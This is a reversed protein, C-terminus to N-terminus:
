LQDKPRGRDDIPLALRALDEQFAGRAEALAQRTAAGANLSTRRVDDPVQGLGLSEILRFATQVQPDDALDNGADPKLDAPRVTVSRSGFPAWRDGPGRVWLVMEVTVQELGPSMEPRTVVAGVRGRAAVEALRKPLADEAEGTLLKALDPLAGLAAKADLPQGPEPEPVVLQQVRVFRLGADYAAETAARRALWQADSEAAIPLLRDLATPASSGPAFGRAELADALADPSRREVDPLASLWGLRLLRRVREPAKAAKQVQSASLSVLLLPSPAHDAADLRALEREVWSSVRDNADARGARDRKWARLRARRQQEARRTPGKEADEWRRALVPAHTQLWARRVVFRLTGRPSSEVIQGLVVTGDRLTVAEAATETVPPGLLVLGLGLLMVSV